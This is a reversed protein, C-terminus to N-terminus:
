VTDPATPVRRTTRWKKLFFRLFLLENCLGIVLLAPIVAYVWGVSLVARVGSGLFYLSLASSVWGVGLLLAVVAVYPYRMHLWSEAKARPSPRGLLSGEWGMVQNGVLDNIQHEITVLYRGARQSREHEGLWILLSAKALQPIFVFGVAGALIDPVQRTLLAAILVSLAAFSFNMIRLRHGIADLSEKRVYEYEKLLADVSLSRTTYDSQPALAGPSPEASGGGPERRRRTPKM